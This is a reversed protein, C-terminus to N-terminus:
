RLYSLLVGSLGIILSIGIMWNYTRQRAVTPMRDVQEKLANFSSQLDKKVEKLNDNFRTELVGHLNKIDHIDERLGRIESRMEGFFYALEQEKAERGKSFNM